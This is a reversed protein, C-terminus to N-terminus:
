GTQSHDNAKSTGDIGLHRQQLLAKFNIFELTGLDKVNYTFRIFGVLQKPTKTPQYVRYLKERHGNSTEIKFDRESIGYSRM